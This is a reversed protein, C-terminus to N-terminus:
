ANRLTMSKIAGTSKEVTLVKYVRRYRPGQTLAMMAPQEQELESYGITVDWHENDREKVEELLVNRLDKDAYIKGFFAIAALVADEINNANEM